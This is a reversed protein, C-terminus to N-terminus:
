WMMTEQPKSRYSEGKADAEAFLERAEDIKNYAERLCALGKVVKPCCGDNNVTRDSIAANIHMQATRLHFM